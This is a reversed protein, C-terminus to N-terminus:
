SSASTITPSWTRATSPRQGCSPPGIAWPVSVGSPCRTQGHCSQANRVSLPQAGDVLEPPEEPVSKAGLLQLGLEAACAEAHDRESVLGLRGLLTLLSGGAEANLRQARALDVDKPRGSARLRALIRAEPTDPTATSDELVANM